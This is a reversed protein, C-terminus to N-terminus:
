ITAHRCTLFVKINSANNASQQGTNVSFTTLQDVEASTLGSGSVTVSRSDTIDVTMPSGVCVHVSSFERYGLWM